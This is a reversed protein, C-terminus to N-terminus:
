FNIILCYPILVENLSPNDQGRFKIQRFGEKLSNEMM